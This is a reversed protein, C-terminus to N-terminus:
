YCGSVTNIGFSVLELTWSDPNSALWPLHRALLSDGGLYSEEGGQKMLGVEEEGGFLEEYLERYTSQSLRCQDVNRVPERRNPQHFGQPIVCYLGGNEAVTESRQHLTLIYGGGPRAVAFLVGMGGANLRSGFDALVDANPLLGQRLPLALSSNASTVQEILSRELELRLLGLHLVM